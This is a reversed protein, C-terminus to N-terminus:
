ACNRYFKRLAEEQKITLYGKDQYFEGLSEIFESASGRVNEMCVDLMDEINDDMPKQKPKEQEAKREYFEDSHYRKEPEQPELGDIFDTWCSNNQALISQAKRLASLAENDNPSTSLM